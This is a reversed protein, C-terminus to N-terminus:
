NVDIQQSFLKLENGVLVLHVTVSKQSRNHKVSLVKTRM